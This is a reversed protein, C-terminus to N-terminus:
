SATWDLRKPSLYQSFDKGAPERAKHKLAAFRKPLGIVDGASVSYRSMKEGAVLLM